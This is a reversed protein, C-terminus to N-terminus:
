VYFVSGTKASFITLLKQLAFARRLKEAFIDICNIKHTSYSKVLGWSVRCAEGNRHQKQDRRVFKIDFSVLM